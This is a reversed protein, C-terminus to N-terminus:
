VKNKANQKYNEYEGIRAAGFEKLFQLRSMVPRKYNKDKEPQWLKKIETGFQKEINKLGKGADDNFKHRKQIKRQQLIHQNIENIKSNILPLGMNTKIWSDQIQLVEKFYARLEECMDESNKDPHKKKFKALLKGVAGRDKKDAFYDLGRNLKFEEQWIKIIYGILDFSM